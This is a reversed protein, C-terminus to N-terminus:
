HRVERDPVTTQVVAYGNASMEIEIARADIDGFIGDATDVTAFYTWGARYDEPMAAQVEDPLVLMKAALAHEVASVFVNVRM